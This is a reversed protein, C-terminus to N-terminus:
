SNILERIKGSLQSIGCSEGQEFSFQYDMSDLFDEINKLKESM